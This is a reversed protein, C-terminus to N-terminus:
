MGLKHEAWANCRLIRWFHLPELLHRITCMTCRPYCHRFGSRCPRFDPDNESLRWCTSNATISISRCNLFSRISRSSSSSSLFSLVGSIPQRAVQASCLRRTRAASGSTPGGTTVRKYPFARPREETPLYACLLSTNYLSELQKKVSGKRVTIPKLM